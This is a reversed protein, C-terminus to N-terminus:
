TSPQHNDPHDDAVGDNDDDGDCVDGLRDGDNNAQDANVILLCNDSSDLVTDNDDDADCADGESDGDTNQQDPNPVTPCNDVADIIGDGDFDTDGAYNWIILNDIYQGPDHQGGAGDGRTPWRNLDLNYTNESLVANIDDLLLDIEGSPSAVVPEQKEHNIYLKMFESDHKDWVIGVHMLEGGAFNLDYRLGYSRYIGGASQPRSALAVTTHRESGGHGGFFMRFLARPWNYDDKGGSWTIVDRENLHSSSPRYDEAYQPKWWFEIAGQDPLKVGFPQPFSVLGTNSTVAVGNGDQVPAYSVSETVQGNVGIESNEVEDASGLRNWLLMSDNSPTEIFRDSFDTKAYDRIILNDTVGKVSNYYHDWGAYGPYSGLYLYPDFNNTTTWTANSSAEVNGNVYLRVTDATGDIGNVDWVCAFHFTTGDNFDLHGGPAASFEPTYINVASSDSANGISFMFRKGTSGYDWGNWGASIYANNHRSGSKPFHDTLM